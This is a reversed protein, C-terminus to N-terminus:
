NYIKTFDFLIFTVKVTLLILIMSKIPALWLIQWMLGYTQKVSLNDELSKSQKKTESQSNDVEKKFIMVLTTSILFVIGFFVM